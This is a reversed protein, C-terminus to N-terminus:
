YKGCYSKNTGFCCMIEKQGYFEDKIIILFFMKIISEHKISM